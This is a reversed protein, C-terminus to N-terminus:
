CRGKPLKLAKTPPPFPTRVGNTLIIPKYEDPVSSHMIPSNKYREVHARLGQFPGSWTVECVKSTPLEWQRFGNFTHWFRGVVDPRVLNVFAYGLGAQSTFDVPLYVFDYLGAFGWMDMLNLLMSRTYNNPINKLMVTTRPRSKKPAKVAADQRPGETKNEAGPQFHEKTGAAQSFAVLEPDSLDVEFSGKGPRQCLALPDTSRRTMEEEDMAEAYSASRDLASDTRARRVLKSSKVEEDLVYDLFTNKVVLHGSSSSSRSEM